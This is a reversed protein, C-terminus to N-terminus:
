PQEHAIRTHRWLSGEPRVSCFRGATDSQTDSKQDFRTIVPFIRIGYSNVPLPNCFQEGERRKSGKPTNGVERKEESFALFLTNESAEGAVADDIAYEWAFTRYAM